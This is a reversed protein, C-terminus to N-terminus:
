LHLVRGLNYIHINLIYIYIVAFWFNISAKVLCFIDGSKEVVRKTKLQVIGVIVIWNVTNQLDTIM